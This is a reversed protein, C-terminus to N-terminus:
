EKKKEANKRDKFAFAPVSVSISSKPLQLKIAETKQLQNIPLSCMHQLFLQWLYTGSRKMFIVSNTNLHM